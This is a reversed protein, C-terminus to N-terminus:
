FFFRQKGINEIHLVTDGRDLYKLVATLELLLPRYLLSKIMGFARTVILIETQEEGLM